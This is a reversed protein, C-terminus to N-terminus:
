RRSTTGMYGGILYPFKGPTAHYHWGRVSDYHSNFSNLPNTKSDKAMVRAAEYPGYVPFGDLAFGIVPSHADGSDVFPTNVCIPYKHYHYRNDPSPHGCCRDMINSADIMNADFPNYFVVGNVALGVPGMNLAGNADRDTMAIANPNRVPNLPLSYTDKHAQIYSPNYGQAGVTDPFVATPHNPINRVHLKMRDSGDFEIVVNDPVFRDKEVIQGSEDLYGKRLWATMNEAFPNGLKDDKYFLQPANKYTVTLNGNLHGYVDCPVQEAKAPAYFWRGGLSILNATSTSRSAAEGNASPALRGDSAASTQVLSFDQIFMRSFKDSSANGNKFQVKLKVADVESFPILEEFRYTRWAAAGSKRDNGNQAFDKRDTLIQRYILRQGSDLYNAGGRSYFAIKMQLLENALTFGDEARGRFSFTLWKGKAPDIGKVMQSVEGRASGSASYSNLTIGHTRTEDSYGVWAWRASGALSYARPLKGTADAQDFFPNDVLNGGQNRLVFLALAVTSIM